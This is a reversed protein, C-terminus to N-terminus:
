ALINEMVKQRHDTAEEQSLLGNQEAQRIFDLREMWKVLEGDGEIPSQTSVDIRRKQESDISASIAIEDEQEEIWEKSPNSVNGDLSTGVSATEIQDQSNEWDHLARPTITTGINTAITSIDETHLSNINGADFSVQITVDLYHGINEALNRFVKSLKPTFVNREPNWIRIQFNSPTGRLIFIEGGEKWLLWGLEDKLHVGNLYLRRKQFGDGIIHQDAMTNGSHLAGLQICEERFCFGDLNKNDGAFIMELQLSSM